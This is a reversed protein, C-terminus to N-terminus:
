RQAVVELRAAVRTEAEREGRARPPDERRLLAEDEGEEVAVGEDGAGDGAYEEGVEPQDAARAEVHGLQVARRRALQLERAAAAAAVRGGGVPAGKDGDAGADRRAHGAEDRRQAAARDRDLDLLQRAGEGEHVRRRPEDREADGGGGEPQEAGDDGRRGVAALPPETALLLV